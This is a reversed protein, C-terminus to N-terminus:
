PAPRTALYWMTAHKPALDLTPGSSKDAPAARVPVDAKPTGDPALAQCTWRGPPLTVAASAAEIRVPAKGWNRGVTRRDDSFQMGTNECRGCAAILIKQSEELPRGDLATMTVAAFEPGNLVIGNAAAGRHGVLVRAGRASAAFLGRGDKAQWTLAPPHEVDDDPVTGTHGEIAAALRSALLHQWTLEMREGVAALMDRDHRLHLGAIEDLVKGESGGLSISVTRALPPVAGDRFIAAGARMFGWKAPNSDIDFFSTFAERDVDGQRHSYAFLWIGDWDQAAAYAALMPVCEAQFDNPAPHNYESVTFPKGDMREAALRPLTAGDPADVMAKQAVLWNGPDWPRGPFNPHQWYSHGDVFDMDSQGYMGCPGFVITGTVLAKSGLDERVFRRMEDFYAKETETLFRMRDTARTEVESPAFLAVNAKEISEDARLGERGGTCLSVDALEVAVASGGVSFSLRALANDEKAVFGARVDRWETGLDAQGSLGLNHWPDADQGVAYGIRRPGDARARFRVTYYAGAKLALPRQKLSLHWNTADAKEIELRAAKPNGAPHVLKMRCGEHQEMQWHKAAPDASGLKEFGPDALMNDGLPEAGNAWAARLGNTSGYRGKLWQAFRGRLVKAYYDPLTALDERASWMFLSDENTIEVFAVAPDDAYRVKRYPNVHALLDRAYQKQAEILEPTFIGVIKDYTTNPKPLGLATSPARGVHLNLNAYIGHRALQDLFYDLREVAEPHLKLPDKPDLIGNPYRSTDMHHFRVSNVGAAALRAAIREADAHTPFCAGFCLNVGWIRVRRGGVAFHADREVLRPGDAAIPEQPRAIVSAPNPTAPIVFPVMEEATAPGALLVAASIMLGVRM